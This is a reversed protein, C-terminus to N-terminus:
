PGGKLRDRYEAFKYQVVYTTKYNLVWPRPTCVSIKLHSRDLLYLYYMGRQCGRAYGLFHVVCANRLFRWFPLLDSFKSFAKWEHSISLHLSISPYITDQYIYLIFEKRRLFVDSAGVLGKPLLSLILSEPALLERRVCCCRRGRGRRCVLLAQDNM